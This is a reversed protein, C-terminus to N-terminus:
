HKHARRTFLDPEAIFCVIELGREGGAATLSSLESSSELSIWCFRTLSDLLSDAELPGLAPPTVEVSVSVSSSRISFSSVATVATEALTEWAAASGPLTHIHDKRDTKSPIPSGPQWSQSWLVGSMAERMQSIKEDHQFLLFRTPINCSQCWELM